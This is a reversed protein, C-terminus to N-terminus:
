ENERRKREGRRNVKRDGSVKAEGQKALRRERIEGRGRRRRGGMRAREKRGKM